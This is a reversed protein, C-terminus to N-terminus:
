FITFLITLCVLVQVFEFDSADATEPNHEHITFLVTPDEDKLDLEVAVLPM